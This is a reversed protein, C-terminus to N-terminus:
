PADECPVTKRAGPVQCGERASGLLQQKPVQVLEEEGRVAPVEVPGFGQPAPTAEQTSVEVREPEHRPLPHGPGAQVASSGEAGCAPQHASRSPVAGGSLGDSSGASPGPSVPPCPRSQCPQHGWAM